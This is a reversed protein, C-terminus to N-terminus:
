GLRLPLIRDRREDVFDVVLETIRGPEGDEAAIPRLAFPPSDALLIWVFLSAAVGRGAVSFGFSLLIASLAFAVLLVAAILLALALVATGALFLGLFALRLFFRLALATAALLCAAITLLFLGVVFIM